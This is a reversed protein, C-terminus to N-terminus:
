HPGSHHTIPLLYPALFILFTRFLSRRATSVYIGGTPLRHLCLLLGTHRRERLTPSVSGTYGAPCLPPRFRLSPAPKDPFDRHLCVPPPAPFFCENSDPSHMNAIQDSRFISLMNENRM